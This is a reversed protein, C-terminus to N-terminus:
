LRNYDPLHVSSNKLTASIARRIALYHVRRKTRAFPALMMRLLLATIIITKAQADSRGSSRLFSRASLVGVSLVSVLHRSTTVSREKSLDVPVSVIRGQGAREVRACYEADEYWFVQREDLPGVASWVRRNVAFSSFEKFRGPYSRATWARRGPRVRDIITTLMSLDLFVRFRPSRWPGADYLIVDGAESQMSDKVIDLKPMPLDLDDNLALLWEWDDTTRAAANIAASYGSNRGLDVLRFDDRGALASVGASNAAVVVDAGEKTLRALTSRAGEILDPSISPIVVLVGRWAAGGGTPDDAGSEHARM